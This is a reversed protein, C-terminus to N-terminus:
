GEFSPLSRRPRYGRRISESLLILTAALLRPRAAQVYRELESHIYRQAGDGRREGPALRCALVRRATDSGFRPNNGTAAFVAKLPGSFTSSAGLIRDSWFSSTLAADLVASGFKSGTAVNDLLCFPLAEIAIALLRKRMEDETRPIAATDPTRGLAIIALTRALLSKGSEREPAEIFHLPAPGEFASRAVLTMLLSVAVARHAHPNDADFVFGELVDDITSKANALDSESPQAPIEYRISGVRVLGTAQDYGFENFISGDARLVPATTVGELVRVHPYHHMAYTAQMVDKPPPVHKAGSRETYSHFEIGARGVHYVLSKEAIVHVRESEVVVLRQGRQYLDPLQALGAIVRDVTENVRPHGAYISSGALHDGSSLAGDSQASPIVGREKSWEAIELFNGRKHTDIDGFGADRWSPVLYQEIFGEFDFHQGFRQVVHVAVSTELERHSGSEAFNKGDLISDLAVGSERARAAQEDAGARGRLEEALARLQAKPPLRNKVRRGTLSHNGASSAGKPLPMDAHPLVGSFVLVRGAPLPDVDGDGLFEPRSTYLAHSPDYLSTDLPGGCDEQALRQKMQKLTRPEKLLVYVHAKLKGAGRATGWSSSAQVVMAVNTLWPVERWLTSVLYQAAAAFSMSPDPLPWDDTDIALIGLERDELTPPIEYGNVWRTTGSHTRPMAARHQFGAASWKGLVVFCDNWDNLKAIFVGLDDVSEIPCTVAAEHLYTKSNSRALAGARFAKSVVRSAGQTAPPPNEWPANKPRREDWHPFAWWEIARLVLLQNPGIGPIENSTM